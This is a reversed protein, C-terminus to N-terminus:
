RIVLVPRDARRAVAESTSGLLLMKIMGKGSSAIAIVGVDDEAAARIIEKSPVGVHVHIRSKLGLPELEKSMAELETQANERLRAIDEATEGADVVHVLVVEETGIEAFQKIREFVSKSQNSFDTPFLLRKFLDRSLLECRTKDLEKVMGRIILVTKRALRVIDASTSGLFMERLISKGRAGVVIVKVNEKEAAAVIRRSPIGFLVLPKFAVGVRELREGLEFLRTIAKEKEISLSHRQVKVPDLVHVLVAERLGRISEMCDFATSACESFDTAFLVKEFM